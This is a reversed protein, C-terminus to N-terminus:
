WVVADLQNAFDHCDRLPLAEANRGDRDRRVPAPALFEHDLPEHVGPLFREVLHIHAGRDPSMLLKLRLADTAATSVRAQLGGGGGRSVEAGQVLRPPM